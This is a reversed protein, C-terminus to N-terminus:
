RRVVLRGRRGRFSASLVQTADDWSWTQLPRGSWSVTAPVFPEVLTGLAARLEYTRTEEGRVELTWVGRQEVSRVTEGADFMSASGEGRPFALLVARDRRDRLGVLGLVPDGYPALTDVDPPLLPLVAGARVLLPLEDLPAPVTITRGGPIASAPGLVFAGATSSWRAARWLDVWEGEPLYVDRTVAAPALVPAALVDPGFLFEDDRAVAAADAPFALALHRMIPLGTRRYERAAAALYPYLQTRLKGYRTWNAVQDDDYVQPRTKPPLAFGNHQTRMVGSVAGLQVWRTLLEPTLARPGLAFFGGVDSGWVAVGSLGLNLGNWVASRLGDFGWDTSPDGNWVVQACRAAGTWGSRQFRVVPRGARRVFAHAGCHYQVPYLNHHASGTLGGASFADLPTYEGFDEMWGDHGDAVAEALLRAYLARGPRTTLDFQGVRFVSTGTYDYVYSEGSATRSLASAAVAEAFRPEYSECIMPNFYTTVAAGAAHMTAVLAREEDRRAVHDGCPLYHTYTQIVSMPADAARLVAIQARRDHLTGGLQIWPGFIWPAAPAPQRGTRATFRRLVDAPQPGAFVRLQLAAPPPLPPEDEPAGRVEVTWCGPDDSGLRFYSTEANDILVGVGRSSLLWPVPYYTADDRARFGAPPVFFAVIRREEPQYPGDAVHNEVVNGRQDVANSREGFGLFREDGVVEFGAGLMEVPESAAGVPRAGLAIVGEADVRLEVELRRGLPDSTEALATISRRSRRSAVVRTARAWTGASRFGLGRCPAEALLTRGAADE